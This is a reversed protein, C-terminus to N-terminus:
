YGEMPFAEDPVMPASPEGTGPLVPIFGGDMPMSLTPNM